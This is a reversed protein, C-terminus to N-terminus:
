YKNFLIKPIVTIIMEVTEISLQVGLKASKVAKSRFKGEKDKFILRNSTNKKCYGYPAPSYNKPCDEPNCIGTLPYLSSEEFDCNKGDDDCNTGCSYGNYYFLRTNREKNLFYSLKTEPNVCRWEKKQNNISILQLKYGKDVNCDSTNCVGWRCNKGNFDCNYGCYIDELYFSMYKKDASMYYSIKTKPNYCLKDYEIERIETYGHQKNCQSIDMKVGAFSFNISLILICFFFFLKFTNM